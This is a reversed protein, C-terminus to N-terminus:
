ANPLGLFFPQSHHFRTLVNQALHAGRSHCLREIVDGPSLFNFDRNGIGWHCNMTKCVESALYKEMGERNMPSASNNEYTVSDIEPHGTKGLASLGTNNVILSSDITARAM